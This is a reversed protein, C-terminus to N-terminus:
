EEIEIDPSTATQDPVAGGGHTHANFVTILDKLAQTLEVLISRLDEGEPASFKSIFSQADGFDKKIKAM